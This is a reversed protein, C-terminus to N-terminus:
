GIGAYGQSLVVQSREPVTAQFHVGGPGRIGELRITEGPFVPSSFRVGLSRLRTPDHGCITRVLLYGVVGYTCLGHLIPRDFGAKTAAAPDVHIPNRDGNLRYLLAAGLPTKLEDLREFTGGPSAPLADPATGFSGCGGDARLFLTSSVACLSEGSAADKLQKEFYVLAGKGEGKDVVAAVRYSAEIEGHPKLPRHVVLNQEGHLLKVFNVGFRPNAIWAGPQALVAAMTPLACLEKEYVLRLQNADLPDSGAGVSLAYLMTDRDTYALRNLPFQHERLARLDM